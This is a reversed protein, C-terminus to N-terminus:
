ALSGTKEKLEDLLDDNSDKLEQVKAELTEIDDEYGKLTKEHEAVLQDIADHLDQWDTVAFKM